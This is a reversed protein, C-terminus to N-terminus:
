DELFLDFPLKNPYCKVSGTGRVERLGHDSPDKCPKKKSIDVARFIWSDVHHSLIVLYKGDRKIVPFTLSNRKSKTKVTSKPKGRSM